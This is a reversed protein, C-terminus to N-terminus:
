PRSIAQIARALTLDKETIQGGADHTCLQLSVRNWSNHIEPHHDLREAEAGVQNIFALAAKFDKLKYLKLLKSNEIGWGDLGKLAEQIQSQTLAASM